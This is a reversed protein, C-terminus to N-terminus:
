CVLIVIDMKGDGASRWLSVCGIEWAFVSANLCMRSFDKYMYSIADIWKEQFGLQMGAEELHPVSLLM